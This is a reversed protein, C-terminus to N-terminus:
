RTTESPLPIAELHEVEIRDAEQPIEVVLCPGIWRELPIQDLTAGDEVFHWPADVHTGVHSPMVIRSVNAVEGAAIRSVPDITVAPDGPWVPMGPQIPVTVDYITANIPIM